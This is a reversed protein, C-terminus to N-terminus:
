RRRRTLVGLALTLLTLLAPTRDSSSPMSCGCGHRAETTPASRSSPSTAHQEAPKRIRSAIADILQLTTLDGKTLLADSYYPNPKYLAYPWGHDTHGEPGYFYKNLKDSGLDKGRSAYIYGRCYEPEGIGQPALKDAWKEVTNEPDVPDNPNPEGIIGGRIWITKLLPCHPDPADVRPAGEGVADAEMLGRGPVDNYYFSLDTAPEWERAELLIEGVKKGEVDIARQTIELGSKEPLYIEYAELPIRVRFRAHGIKGAWTAGTRTVYTIARGGSSDETEHVRYSHHIRTPKGVEFTADFLWVQGLRPKWPHGAKITGKRHPVAEGNVTTRMADYRLPKSDCMEDPNTEPDRGECAYEPFAIQLTIPKRTLNEFTYEAEIVWDIGEHVILIDEAAMRVKATQLPVIDSGSGGAATDNAHASTVVSLLACVALV